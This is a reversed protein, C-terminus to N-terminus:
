QGDGCICPATDFTHNCYPLCIGSGDVPDTSCQGSYLIISYDTQTHMSVCAHVYTLMSVCAHVYTLLVHAM